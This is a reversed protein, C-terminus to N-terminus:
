LKSLFGGLPADISELVPFNTQVGVAACPFGFPNCYVKSMTTSFPAWLSLSVKVIVTFSGTASWGVWGFSSGLSGWGGFSSGLSGSSGL